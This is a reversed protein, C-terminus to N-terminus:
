LNWRRRFTREFSDGFYNAIHDDNLTVFEQPDGAKWRGGEVNKHGEIPGTLVDTRADLYLLPRPSINHVYDAPEINSIHHFSQLSM